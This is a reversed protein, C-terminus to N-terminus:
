LRRFREAEVNRHIEPLEGVVHDFLSRKAANCSDAKPVFRVDCGSQDLLPCAGFMM